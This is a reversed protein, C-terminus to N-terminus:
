TLFLIDRVVSTKCHLIPVPSDEMRWFSSVSFRDGDTQLGIGELRKVDKGLAAASAAATQGRQEDFAAEPRNM